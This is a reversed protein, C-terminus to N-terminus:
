RCHDKADAQLIAKMAALREAQIGTAVRRAQDLKGTYIAPIIETQRTAKFQEWVTKFELIVKFEQGCYSVLAADLRASANQVRVNLADRATRDRVEIMSILAHRAEMLTSLLVENHPLSKPSAGTVSRVAGSFEIWRGDINILQEQELESLLRSLSGPAVGLLAAVDKRQIPLEIEFRDHGQDPTCIDRILLLIRIFRNRMSETLLAACQDQFRSLDTLAKQIIYDRIFPRQEIQRRLLRREVFHVRCITLVEATNSHLDDAILSRYGLIDNPGNLRLLAGNGDVDMRRLGVMGSTLVHLGQCADGQIFLVQGPEYVRVTGLRRIEDLANSRSVAQVGAAQLAVPDLLAM